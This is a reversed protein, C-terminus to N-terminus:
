WGFYQWDNGVGVPSSARILSAPDLAYQHEPTPHVLVYGGVTARSLPVEFEMVGSGTSDVGCHHASLFCGNRDNILWGSCCWRSPWLSFAEKHWKLLLLFSFLFFLFNSRSMWQDLCELCASHLCPLSTVPGHLPEQCVFCKTSKNMLFFCRFLLFLSSNNQQLMFCFQKIRFIAFCLTYIPPTKQFFRQPKEKNKTKKKSKHKGKLKDKTRAGAWGGRMHSLPVRRQM